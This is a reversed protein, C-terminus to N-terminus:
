PNRCQHLFHDPLPVFLGELRNWFRCDQTECRIETKKLGSPQGGMEPHRAAWYSSTLHGAPPCFAVRDLIGIATKGRQM